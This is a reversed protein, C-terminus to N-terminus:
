APEPKTMELIQVACLLEQTTGDSGNVASYTARARVLTGDPTQRTAERTHIGNVSAERWIKDFDFEEGAKKPFLKDISQGRLQAEMMGSYNTFAKNVTEIEGRKNITIIPLFRDLADSVSQSEEARREVEEQTAQLEEMNQRMEEEQTRLEETMRQSEELLRKTVLSNQTTYIAGAVSEALQLLFNKDSESFEKFSALELVGYVAENAILPVVVLSTPPAEGLGSTISMYDEPVDTLYLLNKERWAQGILGDGVYVREDELSKMRDYAYTAYLELYEEPTEGDMEKVYLKGQNADMHRVLKCILKESLQGMDENNDRILSAFQALGQNHWQRIKDQKAVEGLSDRMNSLAKGIEGSNGFVDIDTDFHGKGVQDAFDKVNKLNRTLIGLEARVDDLEDGRAEPIEPINGEGLTKSLRQIEKISSKVVRDLKRYLLLSIGLALVIAVIESYKFRRFEVNFQGLLEKRQEYVGDSYQSIKGRLWEMDEDVGKLAYAGTEQGNITRLARKKLRTARNLIEKAIQKDKPGLRESITKISDLSIAVNKEWLANFRGLTVERRKRLRVHEDVVLRTRELGSSLSAAYLLAPQCDQSSKMGLRVIGSTGFFTYGVLAITLGAMLGFSLKINFDFSKLKKMKM